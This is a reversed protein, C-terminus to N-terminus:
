EGLPRVEADEGPEGVVDVGPPPEFRFTGPAFEPNRRWNSFEIETRQGLQDDLRMRALNAGDLGLWATDLQGSAPQRPTLALWQLGDREGAETVQFRRELEAPDTLAALPNNQEELGQRRVTVQELDPDYVWVRDGDALILQAFPERYEWRFQRPAALAVSGRSQERLAGDPDYVRQVFEGDLGKLGRTLAALCEPVAAAAPVLVSALLALGFIRHFM